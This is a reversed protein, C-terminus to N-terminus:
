FIFLFIWYGILNPVMEAADLTGKREKLLRANEKPATGGLQDHSHIFRVPDFAEQVAETTLGPKRQGLYEAADDLM